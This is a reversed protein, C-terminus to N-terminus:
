EQDDPDDEENKAFLVSQGVANYLISYPQDFERLVLRDGGSVALSRGGFDSHTHGTWKWGESNMGRAIFEDIPVGHNHGRIILRENGRTFLAFEVGTYATLTSLDQMEVLDKPVIIRDGNNILQRLINKQKADLTRNGFAVGLPTGKGKRHEIPMEIESGSEAHNELSDEGALLEVNTDETFLGSAEFEEDM